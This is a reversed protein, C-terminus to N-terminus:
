PASNGSPTDVDFVKVIGPLGTSPDTQGTRKFAKLPQENEYTFPFDITRIDDGISFGLPLNWLLCGNLQWKEEGLAEPDDYGVILTFPKLISDGTGRLAKREALTASVFAHVQLEWKADIKQIQFTGDRTVRGPKRATRDTGVIPVDIQQVQATASCETVEALLNGTNDRAEGWMGSMRFLGENNVLPSVPSM